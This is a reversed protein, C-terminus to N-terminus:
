MEASETMGGGRFSQRSKQCQRMRPDARVPGNQSIRVAVTRLRIGKLRMANVAVSTATAFVAEEQPPEAAVLMVAGVEIFRHAIAMCPSSAGNGASPPLAQIATAAARSHAHDADTSPEQSVMLVPALPCPSPTTSNLAVDFGSGCIGRPATLAFPWRASTLWDAPVQSM